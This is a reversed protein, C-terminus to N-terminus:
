NIGLLPALSESRQNACCECDNVSYRQIDGEQILELDSLSHLSYSFFNMKVVLYLIAKVTDIKVFSM